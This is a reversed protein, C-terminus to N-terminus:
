KIEFLLDSVEVSGINPETIQGVESANPVLVLITTKCGAAIVKDPNFEVILDGVDVHDGQEVKTKFGNGEMNVTDIGVHILIEMDTETRIGVAHGTPFVAIVEGSVPAYVSGDAPEIGVGPGMMGSAFGEDEVNELCISTGKSPSYVKNTCTTRNGKSQQASEKRGLLKNFIGM